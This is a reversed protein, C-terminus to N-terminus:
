RATRTGSSVCPRTSSPFNADAIHQRPHIGCRTARAATRWRLHLTCPAPKWSELYERNAVTLQTNTYQIAARADGNFSYVTSGALCPSTTTASWALTRCAACGSSANTPDPGYGIIDGLCWVQDYQGDADELVTELAVFNAHIDSILLCRM